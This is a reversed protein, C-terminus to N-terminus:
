WKKKILRDMTTRIDMANKRTIYEEDYKNLHVLNRAERTIHMIDADDENIIEKEVGLTILDNFSKNVTLQSYLMGEFVAGCMLCFSLWAGNDFNKEAEEYFNGLRIRMTQDHVFPFLLSYDRIGHYHIILSSESYYRNDAHLSVTCGNIHTGSELLHQKNEWNNSMHLEAFEIAYAPLIPIKYQYTAYLVDEALVAEPKDLEFVTTKM